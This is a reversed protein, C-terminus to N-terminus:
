LGPIKFASPDNAQPNYVQDQMAPQSGLSPTASDDPKEEPQKEPQKEPQVNELPKPTESISTLDPMPASTNMIDETPTFMNENVPPAPPPPLIASDLSPAYNIEPVENIEPTSSVQPASMAAPNNFEPEIPQTSAMTSTSMPEEAPVPEPTLTPESTSPASANGLAEELMKNYDRQDEEKTEFAEKGLAISPSEESTPKFASNSSETSDIKIPESGPVPITEDGAQALSDAAKQLDALLSSEQSMGGSEEQSSDDKTSKDKKPNSTKEQDGESADKNEKPSSEDEEHDIEINTTNDKESDAKVLSSAGFMENEIDDTINQSILQQNAGAEMLKSAVNMTKSTTAATSFRDTAAVIGTLFATAEEGSLKEKANMTIILDALMESVSSAGKDSWEIEGFKGPNGTTINIISADHMIRGHERLASDLDIGNAVDLALVLDVNYDGYSFELDDESVRARYPTIFLKVFDGDVKCRVHDAKEKNLAVVFDQLTDASPEFTDEPKLFELANPTSGSYIATARKGLRDLYLSLGIAAAMEDVSPDSSLAVLVNQSDAIAHAVKSKIDQAEGSDTIVPDPATPIPPIAPIESPSNSPVASPAAASGNAPPNVPTPKTNDNPM